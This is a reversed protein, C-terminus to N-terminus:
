GYRGVLVLLRHGEDNIICVMKIKWLEVLAALSQTGILVSTFTGIKSAATHM